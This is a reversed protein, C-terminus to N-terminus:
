WSGRCVVREVVAVLATTAINACLTVYFLKRKNEVDKRFFLYVVPIEIILTLFLYGLGIIYNPMTEFVETFSYVMGGTNDIYM